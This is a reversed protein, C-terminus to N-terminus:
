RKAEMELGISPQICHAVVQDLDLMPVTKGGTHLLGAVFTGDVSAEGREGQVLQCDGSVPIAVTEARGAYNCRAIIYLNREAGHGFAKRLDCVPIVTGRRVLVGELSHMAHPFSYVRSPMVLERVQSSDLAYREDGLPFTVFRATDNM